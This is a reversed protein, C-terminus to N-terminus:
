GTTSGTEVKSKVPMEIRHLRNSAIEVAEQSVDCGLWKRGMRKAVSLTTGSGCFFDAVLDGPQSSAEVIRELLAEPKQTPYGTRELSVTSLFPVEWVDTVLPGDAHFYVPGNKTSKFLRGDDARKLGDTRYTGDRLSNFTHRGMVKAYSLITDHKRGFWKTAVGGTRYSWIIENLFNEVGFIDDLMLRVHHAVRHDIHVYVTASDRMLRRMEVLRERLFPCYADIGGSWKDDYSQGSATSRTANTMFPPDIYILDICADPLTRM